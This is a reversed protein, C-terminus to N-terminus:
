TPRSTIANSSFPTTTGARCAYEWEAESPLRYAEGTEQSLWAVYERADEWSVDIVPRRGRGWGEDEPKERRTVECFHDYEDFTVAYRGLAFRYGIEVRHQPGEDDDRGEEGPPSGM